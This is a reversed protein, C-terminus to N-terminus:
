HNHLDPNRSPCAQLPRSLFSPMLLRTLHTLTPCLTSKGPVLVHSCSLGLFVDGDPKLLKFVTGLSGSIDSSARGVSSGLVPTVQYTNNFDVGKYDAALLRPEAEIVEIVLFELLNLSFFTLLLFCTLFLLSPLLLSSCSTGYGDLLKCIDCVTTKADRLTLSSSQVSIILAVTEQMDKRTVSSVADVIKVPGLLTFYVRNNDLIQIIQRRISAQNDM